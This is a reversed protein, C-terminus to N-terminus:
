PSCIPGIAMPDKQSNSNHLPAVVELPHVDVKFFAKSTSGISGLAHKEFMAITPHHVRHKFAFRPLFICLSLVERQYYIAEYSHNHFTSHKSPSQQHFFEQSPIKHSRPWLTCRLSHSHLPSDGHSYM